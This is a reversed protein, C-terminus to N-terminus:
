SGGSGGDNVGAVAVHAVLMTPNADSCYPEVYFM